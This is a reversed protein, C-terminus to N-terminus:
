AVPFAVDFVDDDGAAAPFDTFFVERPAGDVKLGQGTIWAMVAEYAQGINAVQTKTLRVFAERHAPQRVLDAGDASVPACVEVPVPGENPNGHYIVFFVPEVARDDRRLYPWADTGAVGGHDRARTHVRAMAGVLYDFLEAQAVTRQEAVVFHEPVDRLQIDFM